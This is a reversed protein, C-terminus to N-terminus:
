IQGASHFVEPPYSIVQLKKDTLWEPLIRCTIRLLTKCAVLQGCFILSYKSNLKKDPLSRHKLVQFNKMNNQYSPVRVAVRPRLAWESMQTSTTVVVRGDTQGIKSKPRQCTGSWRPGRESSPSSQSPPGSPRCERWLCRRCRCYFIQFRSINIKSCLSLVIYRLHDSEELSGSFVSHHLELSFCKELPSVIECRYENEPSTFYLENESIIM